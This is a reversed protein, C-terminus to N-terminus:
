AVVMIGYALCGFRIDNDTRGRKFKEAKGSICVLDFGDPIYEYWENPILYRKM